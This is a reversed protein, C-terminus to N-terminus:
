EQLLQTQQTPTDMLPVVSFRDLEMFSECKADQMAVAVGGGSAPAPVGRVVRRTRRRNIRGPGSDVRDGCTEEAPATLFRTQGLYTPDIATVGPSVGPSEGEWEDLMAACGHCAWPCRTQRPPPATGPTSSGFPFPTFIANLLQRRDDSSQSSLSASNELESTDGVDGVSFLPPRDFKRFCWVLALNQIQKRRM